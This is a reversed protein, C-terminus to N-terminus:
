SKQIEALSSKIAWALYECDDSTTKPFLPLSVVQRSAKAAIPCDSGAESYGLESMADWTWIAPYHMGCSVRYKNKLVSLFEARDLPFRDTNLRVIYLHCGHGDEIGDPLILEEVGELMRHMVQFVELRRSIVRDIKALQTLGVASQPKTMRYNFGVSAVRLQPGYVYGFTKKQRVVEAFEEDNSTVAGGEGLTTMNKNSQFSYCNARGRGGIPAGRYKTGVAHAADYIIPIGTEDSIADFGGCDAALGAFHVPLIAKTRPTIRRRVDQPDLCMTNPDIDAFVVKAGLAIACTATCVFSLPTTIVEDGPAIELAMMCLDLATGCSNVSVAKAAGEHKALAQQFDNEEPLPFFSGSPEAAGQMVALAAEIDDQEFVGGLAAFPIERIAPSTKM